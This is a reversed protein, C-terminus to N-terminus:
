GKTCIWFCLVHLLVKPLLSFVSDPRTHMLLVSRIQDHIQKLVFRHMFPDPCWEGYPVFADEYRIHATHINNYVYNYGDLLMQKYMSVAKPIDQPIGVTGKLYDEALTSRAQPCGLSIAQTYRQIALEHNENHQDISALYYIANPHLMAAAKQIMRINKNYAARQYLSDAYNADVGRQIHAEIIDNSTINKIWLRKGLEAICFIDNQHPTLYEIAKKSRSTFVSIIWADQPSADCAAIKPIYARLSKLISVNFMNRANSLIYIEPVTCEDRTYRMKEILYVLYDIQKQHARRLM